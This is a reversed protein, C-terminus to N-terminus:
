LLAVLTALRISLSNKTHHMLHNWIVSDNKEWILQLEKNLKSKALVTVIWM